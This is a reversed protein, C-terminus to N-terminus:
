ITKDYRFIINKNLLSSESIMASTKWGDLLIVDCPINEFCNNHTVCFVNRCNIDYLRTTINELFSQRRISDMGGDVEDLIVINYLNDETSAEIIGTSISLGITAKEAKSCESVDVLESNGRIVPIRFENNDLKFESVNLVGDWSKDLDKNASDTVEDLFDKILMAPYGDKTNWVKYALEYLNRKVEINNKRTKLTDLSIIETKIKEISNKIELIDKNLSNEIDRLSSVCVSLVRNNYLYEGEKLLTTKYEELSKSSKILEEREVILDQISQYLTNLSNWENTISSKKDMVVKLRENLQKRKDINEQLIRKSEESMTLIRSINKLNQISEETTKKKELLSVYEDYKKADELLFGVNDLVTCPNPSDISTRLSDPLYLTKGDLTHLNDVIQNLDFLSNKLNQILIQKEEIEKRLKDMEKNNNDIKNQTECIKSSNNDRARSLLEAILSCKHEDCGKPIVNKLSSFDVSQTNLEALLKMLEENQIKLSVGTEKLLEIQTGVDNQASTDFINTFKYHNCVNSIKTSIMAINTLVNITSSISDHISQSYDTYKGYESNSAITNTIFDNINKLDTELKTISENVSILDYNDIDTNSSVTSLEIKNTLNLIEDNLGKEEFELKDNEKDLEYLRYELKDPHAIYNSYKNFTDANKSYCENHLKVKSLYDNKRNQVYEKTYKSLSSQILMSKSIGDKVMDLKQQKTELKNELDLLIKDSDGITIKAIDKLLGEIEKNSQNLKKQAIKSATSFELTSPIWNSMLNNRETYTMSVINKMDDSLYCINKYNKDYGLYTKCLEMYSTVNGNDNLEKEEGTILDKHIFSCTTKKGDESITITCKYEDTDINNKNSVVFTIEKVGIKGSIFRKSVRQGVHMCPEPTFESLLFSKGSGNGGLILILNNNSNRRDFEFNTIKMSEYFPAYNLLKLSVIRISKNKM